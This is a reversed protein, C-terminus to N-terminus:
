PYKGSYRALTKFIKVIVKHVHFVYNTSCQDDGDIDKMLCRRYAFYPLYVWLSLEPVSDGSLYCKLHLISMEQVKHHSM